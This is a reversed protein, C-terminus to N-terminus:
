TAYDAKVGYLDMTKFIMYFDAATRSSYGQGDRGLRLYHVMARAYRSNMPPHEPNYLLPINRQYQQETFLWYVAYFM